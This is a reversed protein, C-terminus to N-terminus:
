EAHAHVEAPFRMKLATHPRRHNYLHVAQNVALRASKKCRFTTGLTYESKLIGNVREALANEACHNTETMSVSLGRAALRQVYQHCCYQTGKDSHHIPHAGPPLDALAQDLAQLCGEAELTDGCHYGVIKRSMKDTLLALYLFGM